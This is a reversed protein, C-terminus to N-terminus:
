KFNKCEMTWGPFDKLDAKLFIPANEQRAKLQWDLWRIVMQAFAGGYPQAFTAGHGAETMDAFVVPVKKISKYDILANAHAVDSPGGIMYIIPAHLKKLSKASAGAMEMKGMGSNLLLYSKLRPDDAICLVQAGGCSHGAAAVKDMDVRNFYLSTSDKCQAEMWNIADTLMSAPTSTERRDHPYNQMEGIAIVIYGHSAIEILMKEQHISTDMCGGNAYVMLPLKAGRRTAAAMNAPRYVVFEPLSKESVAVAQFQGRGGGEPAKMKLIRQNAFDNKLHRAFFANAAPQTIELGADFAVGHNGPIRIYDVNSGAKRMKQVFDDTLEPKVIPDESGQLLLMPPKNGGIYGIPWWQTDKVGRIETPPAGAVVCAVHSSYDSWENTELEKSDASVGVMLSLHAGASHGTCGIRETDVRLEKAHAKLWRVACKVDQICAPFPAEQVFRYEVSITVYGQLAYDMLLNRYVPDSKSGASWGGGHIIVIAPRLGEDGFNMPEALDLVCSPSVQSYPIDSTVKVEKQVNAEIALGFLLTIIFLFTKRYM